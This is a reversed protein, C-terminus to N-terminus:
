VTLKSANNKEVYYDDTFSVIKEDFDTAIRGFELFIMVPKNKYLIFKILGKSTYFSQEVLTSIQVKCAQQQDASLLYVRYLWYCAQLTCIEVKTSYLKQM